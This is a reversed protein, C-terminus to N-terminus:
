LFSFSPLLSQLSGEEEVVHGMRTEYADGWMSGRPIGSEPARKRERGRKM